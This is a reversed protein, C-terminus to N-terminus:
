RGAPRQAAPEAKLARVAVFTALCATRHMCRTRTWGEKGLATLKKALKRTLAEPTDAKVSVPKYEHTARSSSTPM